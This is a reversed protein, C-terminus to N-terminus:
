KVRLDNRDIKNHRLDVLNLCQNYKSFSILYDLAPEKLENHQLNIVKVQNQKIMKLLHKLGIESLANSELNIESTDKTLHTELCSIINKDM